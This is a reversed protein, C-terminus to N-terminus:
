KTGRYTPGVAVFAPSILTKKFPRDSQFECQPYQLPQTRWVNGVSSYINQRGSYSALRLVDLIAEILSHLYDLAFISKRHQCRACAVGCPLCRPYPSTSSGLNGMDSTRLVSSPPDLDELNDPADM